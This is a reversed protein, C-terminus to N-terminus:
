YPCEVNISDYEYAQERRDQIIDGEDDTMDGRGNMLDFDCDWCIMYVKDTGEDEDHWTIPYLKDADLGCRYCTNIDTTMENTAGVPVSSDETM